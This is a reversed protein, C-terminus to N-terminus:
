RFLKVPSRLLVRGYSRLASDPVGMGAGFIM